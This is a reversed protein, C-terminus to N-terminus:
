YYAKRNLIEPALYGPTGCVTSAQRDELIFRAFGFDSVKVIKQSFGKKQTILLNELKIDRHVIGLSHCYNLADVIPVLFQRAQTETLGGGSERIYDLLDGGTCLETILFFYKEDEYVDYLKIINPHDLRKLINVESWLASVEYDRM